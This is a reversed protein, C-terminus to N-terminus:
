TALQRVNPKYTTDLKYGCITNYYYNDTTPTVMGLSRLIKKNKIRIELSYQTKFLITM